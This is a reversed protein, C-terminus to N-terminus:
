EGYVSKSNSSNRFGAKLSSHVRPPAFQEGGKIAAPLEPAPTLNRRSSGYIAPTHVTNANARGSAVIANREAVLDISKATRDPRPEAADLAADMLVPM